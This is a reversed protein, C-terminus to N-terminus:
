LLDRILAVCLNASLEEVETFFYEKVDRKRIAVMPWFVLFSRM